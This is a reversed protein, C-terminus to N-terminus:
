QKIFKIAQQPYDNLKIFYLGSQLDSVNVEISSELSIEKVLVGLSNYIKIQRANSLNESFKLTLYETAPNPHVSLHKSEDLGLEDISTSLTSDCLNNQSYVLNSNGSVISTSFNASSSPIGSISPLSFSNVSYNISSENCGGAFGNGNIKLLFIDELGSGVSSSYGSAIFRNPSLETIFRIHEAQIGPAYQKTWLIDGSSNLMIILGEENGGGIGTYGSMLYNGTSTQIISRCTNLSINGDGIMKSWVVNGTANLKFLLIDGKGSNVGSNGGVIYGGDTTQKVTWAYDIDSVTGLVKSWATTGNSNLKVVNVDFNSSWGNTEGVAICGGDSTTALGRVYDESATGFM